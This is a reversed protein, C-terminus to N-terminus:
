QEMAKLEDRRKSWYDALKEVKSRPCLGNEIHELMDMTHAPLFEHESSCLLHTSLRNTLWILDRYAKDLDSFGFRENGKRTKPDAGHALVKGAYIRFVKASDFRRCLQKFTEDHIRDDRKREAAGVQSLEDFQQHRFSTDGKHSADEYPDGDVCVYLERTILDRQEKIESIIRPLSYVAKNKQGQYEETVRRIAFVQHAIFGRNVFSHVMSNQPVGSEKSLTKSYDITHFELDADLLATIQTSIAHEDQGNLMEVWKARFYRYVALREKDAVDCEELPKKHHQM